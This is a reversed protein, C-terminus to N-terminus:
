TSLCCVVHLSPDHRKSPVPRSSSQTQATLYRKIRRSRLMTAEKPGAKGTVGQEDIVAKWSHQCIRQCNTSMEAFGCEHLKADHMVHLRNSEHESEANEFNIYGLRLALRKSIHQHLFSAFMRSKRHAHVSKNKGGVKYHSTKTKRVKKLMKNLHESVQCSMDSTDCPIGISSCHHFLISLMRPMDICLRYMYDQMPKGPFNAYFIRVAEAGTRSALLVLEKTWVKTAAVTGILWRLRRYIGHWVFVLYSVIM